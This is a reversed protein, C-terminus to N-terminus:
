VSCDKNKCHKLKLLELRHNKELILKSEYANKLIESKEIENFNMKSLDEITFFYQNILKECDKKQQLILKYLECKISM